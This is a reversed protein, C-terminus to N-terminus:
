GNAPEGGVQAAVAEEFAVSDAVPASANAAVFFSLSERQKETSM